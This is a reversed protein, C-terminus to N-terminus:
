KLLGLLNKCKKARGNTGKVLKQISNSIQSEASESTALVVKDKLVVIPEMADTIASIDSKIAKIDNFFQKMHKPQSPAEANSSNNGHNPDKGWEVDHIVTPWIKSTGRKVWRSIRGMVM